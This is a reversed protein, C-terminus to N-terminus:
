HNIEIMYFHANGSRDITKETLRARARDERRWLAQLRERPADTVLAGVENWRALAVPARRGLKTADLSFCARAARGLIRRQLRVVERDSNWLGAGTMGEGGMFAIDFHWFGAARLAYEGLLVSQRELLRGGLLIVELGRVAVLAHAVPLNATVVRLPAVPHAVLVEALAHATTGTDFYCVMGPRILTRAVRAMALKGERAVFRRESFSPFRHDFDTLAGGWTRRIKQEGALAALDRRATAESIGLHRCLERVPLYRHECLLAALRERRAEVVHAPVRM